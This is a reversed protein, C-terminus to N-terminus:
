HGFHVKRALLLLLCQLDRLLRHRHKLVDILLQTFCASQLRGHLDIQAHLLVLIGQTRRVLNDADVLAPVIDGLPAGGQEEDGVDPLGHSLGSLRLLHRALRHLEELAGHVLAALRHCQALKGVGAERVVVGGVPPDVDFLGPLKARGNAVLLTLGTSQALNCRRVEVQAGEFLSSVDSVLADLEAAILSVLLVQGRHEPGHGIPVHRLDGRPSSPRPLAM